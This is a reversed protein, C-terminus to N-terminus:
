EHFVGWPVNFFEKVLPLDIGVEPLDMEGAEKGRMDGLAAFALVLLVVEALAPFVRDVTEEADMCFFYFFLLVGTVIRLGSFLLGTIEERIGPSLSRLDRGPCVDGEVLGLHLRIFYRLGERNKVCNKRHLIYESTTATM